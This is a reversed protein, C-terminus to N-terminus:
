YFINIIAITIRMLIFYMIGINANICKREKDNENACFMGNTFYSCPIGRWNARHHDGSAQLLHQSGPPTWSSEM